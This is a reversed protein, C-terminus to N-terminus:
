APLLQISVLTGEGAKSELEIKGGMAEVLGRAISLGLGSGRSEQNRDGEGRYFREFVHPLHHGPIGSGTDSVEITIRGDGERVALRITGGSPTHRLANDLAILLVQRLRTPDAAASGQIQLVELTVGQEVAVRGMERGLSALLTQLNVHERKLELQGADLRSLLLLDEVLKNMHDTEGLIDGLLERQPDAAGLGRQAVEASARLLTLPARLEHSANAIFAQQRNWARQAPILSRGALWWSGLGVLAVSLSGLSILGVLLQGLVRDQDKLSRGVQLVALDDSQGVRYSFLRVRSGDTLRVTRFDSQSRLAARVAEQDPDLNLTYLNPSSIIEGRDDLELLFISALESDYYEESAENTLHIESDDNEHDDGGNLNSPIPSPTTSRRSTQWALAAAQLDEPVPQGMRVFEHAVKYQLALDTSSRFYYALLGYAGGGILSVLILAALVYLASLQWRLKKLM